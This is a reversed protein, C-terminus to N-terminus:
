RSSEIVTEEKYILMFFDASFLVNLLSEKATTPDLLLSWPCNEKDEGTVAPFGSCGTSDHLRGIGAAGDICVNAYVTGTKYSVYVEAGTGEFSFEIGSLPWNMSHGNSDEVWRGLFRVSDASVSATNAASVSFSCIGTFFCLLLLLSVSKKM